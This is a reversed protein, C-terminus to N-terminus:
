DKLPLGSAPRRVPNQRRRRDYTVVVSPTAFATAAILKGTLLTLATQERQLREVMQEIRALREEDHSYEVMVATAYTASANGPQVRDFVRASVM